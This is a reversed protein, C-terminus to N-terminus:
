FRFRPTEGMMRFIVRVERPKIISDETNRVRRRIEIRPNGEKSRVWYCYTM